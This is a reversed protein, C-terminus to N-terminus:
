VDETMILSTNASENNCKQLNIVKNLTDEYRENAFDLTQDKSTDNVNSVSSEREQKLRKAERYRELLKQSEQTM